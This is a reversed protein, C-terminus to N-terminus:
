KAAGEIAQVQAELANYEALLEYVKQGDKERGTKCAKAAAAEMKWYTRAKQERLNELEM